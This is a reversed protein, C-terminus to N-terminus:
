EIVEDAFAHLKLPFEVGLAKATKLNIQFELRTAQQVPTAARPGGTNSWCTVDRSM